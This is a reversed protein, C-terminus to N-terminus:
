NQHTITPNCLKCRNSCWSVNSSIAEEPILRATLTKMQSKSM